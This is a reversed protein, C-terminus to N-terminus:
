DKLRVPPASLYQSLERERIFREASGTTKTVDRWVAQRLATDDPNAAMVAAREAAMALERGLPTETLGEEGMQRRIEKIRPMFEREIWQRVAPRPARADAPFRGAYDNMLTVLDNSYGRLLRAQHLIEPAITEALRADRTYQRVMLFSVGMGFVLALTALIMFQIWRYLSRFWGRSM